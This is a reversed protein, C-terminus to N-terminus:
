KNENLTQRFGINLPHSALVNHVTVNKHNVNLLTIYLHYEEALSKDGLRVNKGFDLINLGNGV